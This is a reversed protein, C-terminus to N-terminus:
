GDYFIDMQKAEEILLTYRKVQKRLVSVEEKKENLSKTLRDRIDNLTEIYAQKADNEM